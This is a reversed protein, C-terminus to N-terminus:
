RRGSARLDVEAHRLRMDQEEIRAEMERIIDELKNVRSRLQSNEKTLKESKGKYFDCDVALHGVDAPLMQAQAPAPQAAKAQKKEEKAQVALQLTKKGDETQLYSLVMLFRAFNVFEGKSIVGTKEDDFISTFRKCQDFDLSLYHAKTMDIIIPFLELPDLCGSNDADLEKFRANCNAAFRKSLLEDRFEEPLYAYVKKLEKKDRKLGALLDEIVQSDSLIKLGEEIKEKGTSSHLYSMICLFRAFDVFEDMRIVGDGHIDFISTFKKCQEYNVSFPHAESLEVIVPFLEGPDLHGNKDQDLEAFRDQCKQIFENSTVQDFVEQPLLPVVKHIANRDATLMRLLEEVRREGAAIEAYEKVTQGEDTELYSLIMIFRAFNIFEGETIVGNQATDFLNVFRDCQDKTLAFLHADALNIVVPILEKPELVGSADKDLTAFDELCHDAFDASMLEDQLDVPLFPLVDDIKECHSKLFNLLEEIRQRSHAIQSDHWDGTTKLYGMVLLFKAYEVMDEYCIFGNKDVDFITTFKKCDEETIEIPHEKCLKIVLPFLEAPDLVNNRSKDIAKFGELCQERFNDGSVDEIIPRPMYQLIESMNKPDKTLEAIYHEIVKRDTVAQASASVQQGEVTSSLFNMVALFQAFDIFEDRMIVGNKHVDFVNVFRKCKETTVTLPNARTLSLVVPLLESPELVGSRDRDLTDFRIMCEDMFKDSTLHMVLWDPLFPVVDNIRDKDGELINLFESFRDEELQAQEILAKGEDTELHASIIVFQTLTTFEDRCICGDENADFIEIFKKSQDSGISNHNATSLQVIVPVLQKADLKGSKDLDLMDFQRACEKALDDSILMDSLEKPLLPLILSLNKSTRHLIELLADVKSRSIISGRCSGRMSGRISGRYSGRTSSRSGKAKASARSDGSGASAPPAVPTPEPKSQIALAKARSIHLDLYAFPDPPKSILLGHLIDQFVRVLNHEELYAAAQTATQLKDKPLGKTALDKVDVVPRQLEKAERRLLTVSMKGDFDVSISNQTPDMNVTQVSAAPTLIELNMPLPQAPSSAFRFPQGFKAIPAQRKTEGVKISLISSEPVGKSGELIIEM